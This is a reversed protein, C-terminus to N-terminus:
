ESTILTKASINIGLLQLLFCSSKLSHPVISSTAVSLKAVQPCHQEVRRFEHTNLPGQDLTYKLTLAQKISVLAIM